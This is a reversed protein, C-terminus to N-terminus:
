VLGSLRKEKYNRIPALMQLIPASDVYEEPGSELLSGSRM